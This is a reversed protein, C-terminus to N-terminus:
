LKTESEFKVLYEHYAFLWAHMVVTDEYICIM